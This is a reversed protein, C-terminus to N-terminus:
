WAATGLSLSWRWGMPSRSGSTSCQGPCPDQTGTRGMSAQECLPSQTEELESSIAQIPKQRRAIFSNSKESVMATKNKVM